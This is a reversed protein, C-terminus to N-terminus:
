RARRRRGRRHPQVGRRAARRHRRRAPRRHARPVGARGAGSRRLLAPAPQLLQAHQLGLLEQPRARGRRRARGARRLGDGAAARRADRRARAPLPDERDPRRLHGSAEGARPIAPSAAWTSSTSSRATSGARLSRTADAPPPETVVARLSTHGADQPDSARRRDWVADTVARAWPDLLEKRPNFSRGTQERTRRDTRVGPTTLARRCAKWSCTGSSSRATTSRRSRSSRFRSRATRRRTSCFSSARPM